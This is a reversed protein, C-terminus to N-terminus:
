ENAHNVTGVWNSDQGLMLLRNGWAVPLGFDRSVDAPIEVPHWEEGDLSFFSEVVSDGTYKLFLWGGAVPSLTSVDPGVDLEPVTDIPTWNVGDPSIWHREVEFSPDAYPTYSYGSAEDYKLDPWPYPLSIAEFSVGDRTVYGEGLGEGDSGYIVIGDRVEILRRNSNISQLAGIGRSWPGVAEVGDPTVTMLKLFDAEFRPFAEYGVIDEWDFADYNPFEFLTEGSDADALTLGDTSTLPVFRLLTESRDENEDELVVRGSLTVIPDLQEIQRNETSEEDGDYAYDYSDYTGPEIGLLEDWDFFMAYEVDILTTDGVAAVSRIEPEGILPYLNQRTLGNLNIEEWGSVLDSSYWLRSEPDRGIFWHGSPTSELWGGSRGQQPLAIATEVWKFGDESTWLSYPTDDTGSVIAIRQTTGDDTVFPMGLSRDMPGAYPPNGETVETWEVNIEVPAVPVVTPPVTTDPMTPVTTDPMTPVTTVVTAEEAPPADGALLDLWTVSSGVILTLVAAVTAVAWGRSRKPSELVSSAVTTTIRNRDSPLDEVLSESYVRIQDLLPTENM